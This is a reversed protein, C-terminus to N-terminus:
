RRFVEDLARDKQMGAVSEERARINPSFLAGRNTPDAFAMARGKGKGQNEVLDTPEYIHSALVYKEYFFITFLLPFHTIKIVTRNLLVFQRIPMVYRLPMLVWAFINGPAVYSFLADNKVM